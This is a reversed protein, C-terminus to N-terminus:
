GYMGLTHQYYTDLFEWVEQIQGGGCRFRFLYENVYAGGDSTTASLAFHAAVNEGDAMLAHLTIQITSFDFFEGGRGMMELIRNSGSQVPLHLHSCVEPIRGMAFALSSPPM